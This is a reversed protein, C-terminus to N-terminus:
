TSPLQNELELAEKGRGLAYLTDIVKNKAKVTKPDDEGLLRRRKALVTQQMPLAQEYQKMKFLSAALNNMTTITAPNNEGCVRTRVPLLKEYIEAAKSYDGLDYYTNGLILVTKLTDEHEDGLVQRQLTLLEKCLELSKEYQGLKGHTYLLDKMAELTDPHNNGLVIRRLNLVDEEFPLVAGYPGLQVYTGILAFSWFSADPNEDDFQMRIRELGAEFLTLATTYHGLAYHTTALTRRWFITDPHIESFIMRHKDMVEELPALAEEYRQLAYLTKAVDSLASLTNLHESGELARRKAFVEDFLPLAEEYCNLDYLTNALSAQAQLTGSHDSGYQSSFKQFVQKAINRAYEYQGRNRCADGISVMVTLTNVHNAGYKAEHKRLLYELIILAHLSKGQATLAQVLLRASYLTDDHDEGLLTRYLKVADEAWLASNTFSRMCHFFRSCLCMMDAHFLDSTKKKACEMLLYMFSIALRFRGAQILKMLNSEISQACFARLEERDQYRMLGAQIIYNLSIPYDEGCVDQKEIAKTFHDITKQCIKEKLLQPCHAVLVEGVTQHINYWDDDSQIVFSFDKAKEYTSLSFNPLVESAIRMILDDNWMQLCALTYVLDKQSDSMYRIFREILEYTNQGFMSIEPLIGKASLRTFQDVCLDLYVPTGNTLEHLQQRLKSGGVGASSLFSDSDAQSLNGLIHQELADAWDPDFREWKLKERGAIVWLVNPINQILGEEGRIWLDNMLPDGTSSLENVLREYTDLMIVLLKSNQEQNHALDQAFLYPLHRYLEEAEMYEIQKLERSHNKLYTGVYAAIKDALSLMSTAFGLIPINGAISLALSLTPSKETLQKIEPSDPNDGIKKAYMYSGLEFLPFTFKCQETLKNKLATLVARSEQYINFDFYVYRRDSFREDMESMLKKLLSSKGIGGIGYYTLVHINGGDAMEKICRDYNKWFAARPEERDTFVRTAKINENKSRVKM